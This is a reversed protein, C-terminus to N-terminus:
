NDESSLKLSQIFQNLNPQSNSIPRGRVDGGRRPQQTRSARSMLSDFAVSQIRGPVGPHSQYFEQVKAPAAMDEEVVWM